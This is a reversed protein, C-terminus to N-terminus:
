FPQEEDAVADVVTYDETRELRRDGNMEIVTGGALRSAIRDDYKEKIASLSLNSIVVSPKGERRDIAKKVTEYQFDSVKARTGLEDLVTLSADDWDKWIESARRQYGSSYLLEGKESRILDDCLDSVAYYRGSSCDLLCLALCTKGSGASGLLVIPFDLKGACALAATTWAMENCQAADRYIAPLWGSGRHERLELKM